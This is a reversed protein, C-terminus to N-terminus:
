CPASGSAILRANPRELSPRASPGIASASSMIAPAGHRFPDGIDVRRACESDVVALLAGAGDDLLVSFKEGEIGIAVADAGKVGHKFGGAFNRASLVLRLS